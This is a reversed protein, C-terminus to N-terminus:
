FIEDSELDALFKYGDTKNKHKNELPEIKFNYKLPFNRSRVIAKKRKFAETSAEFYAQQPVLLNWM